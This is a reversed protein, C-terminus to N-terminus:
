ATVEVLAHVAVRIALQAVRPDASEAGERLAPWLRRCTALAAAPSEARSLTIRSESKQNKRIRSAPTTGPRAEEPM